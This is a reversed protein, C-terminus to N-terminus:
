RIPQFRKPRHNSNRASAAGTLTVLAPCSNATLILNVDNFFSSALLKNGSTDPGKLIGACAENITNGVVTNNNGTKQILGCAQQGLLNIGAEDSDNVTNDAVLNDNSCLIIGDFIRTGFVLNLTVDGLDASGESDDGVFVIANQTNGVTNRTVVVGKSAFVLIGTAADAPDLITDPAWISDIISNLQVMAQAGFGVQIGNETAGDTPGQGEVTNVAITAFTGQENATIGNKQFSHVSSNTVSVTGKQIFIGEGDQCGTLSPGHKQNRTAVAKISGSANQFFIGVLDLGCGTLGNNSGDVTVNVINVATASKVAIGAAAPGGVGTVNQVMGGGPSTIVAAGVNGSEIGVLTLNKSITVQEPYTGPCVQVTDGVASANVAAQIKAFTAGPCSGVRVNAATAMKPALGSIGLLGIGLGVSTIMKSWVRSNKRSM